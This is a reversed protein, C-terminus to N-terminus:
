RATKGPVITIPTSGKKLPYYQLFDYFGTALTSRKSPLLVSGLFDGLFYQKSRLYRPFRMMTNEGEVTILENPEDVVWESTEETKRAKKRPTGGELDM